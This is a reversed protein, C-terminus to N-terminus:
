FLIGEELVLIPVFNRKQLMLTRNNEKKVLKVYIVYVVSNPRSCGLKKFRFRSILLQPLYKVHSIHLNNLM